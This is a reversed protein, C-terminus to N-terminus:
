SVTGTGVVLAFLVLAVTAVQAGLGAWAWWPVDRWWGVRLEVVPELVSPEPIPPDLLM